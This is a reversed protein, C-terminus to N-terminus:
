KRKRNIKLYKGNKSWSSICDKEKLKILLQQNIESNEIKLPSAGKELLNSYESNDFAMLYTKIEPCEIYSIQTVLLELNYKNDGYFLKEFLNRDEIKAPYDIYFKSIIEKAKKNNDINSLDSQQIM